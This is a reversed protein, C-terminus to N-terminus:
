QSLSKRELWPKIMAAQEVTGALAVREERDGSFVWKGLARPLVYSSFLLTLYFWPIYSLFFSRLNELTDQAIFIVLFVCFLGLVAQRASRRISLVWNRDPTETVSQGGAGFLVGILLFENYLLYRELMEREGLLASQWILFWGWYSLTVLVLQLLLALSRIGLSRQSVM